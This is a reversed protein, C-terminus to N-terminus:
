LTARSTEHCTRSSLEAAIELRNKGDLVDFENPGRRCVIVPNQIGQEAIAAKLSEREEPALPPFLHAYPFYYRCGNLMLSSTTQTDSITKQSPSTM